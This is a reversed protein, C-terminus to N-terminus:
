RRFESGSGAASWRFLRFCLLDSRTGIQKYENNECLHGGFLKGDPQLIRVAGGEEACGENVIWDFDM